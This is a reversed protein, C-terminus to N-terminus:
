IDGDSDGMVIVCIIVVLLSVLFVPAGGDFFTDITCGCLLWSLIFIGGVLKQM